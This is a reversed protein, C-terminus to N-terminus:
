GRVSGRRLSNTLFGRKKGTQFNSVVM